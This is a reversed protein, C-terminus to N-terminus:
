QAVSNDYTISGLEIRGKWFSQTEAVYQGKITNTYQADFQSTQEQEIVTKCQNDYAKSDNNNVMKIVFYGDKTELVGSVEGNKMKKVVKLTKADLFDTDTEILDRTAYSIGTKKDTTGNEETQILDKTFDKAKVAKKQLAEMDKAAQKLTAEDKTKTENNEGTETKAFTYYQLTYQRYDKKSVTKKLEDENINLGSIVSQKYKEGLEQKEFVTIMTAEDLGKMKKQKDTLNERASQVNKKIKEKEEDTLSINNKLASLYLIERQKMGDMISKKYVEAYTDGNETAEDWDFSMGYAAYMDAMAEAQYIDYMAEQVNVTNTVEKGDKGPGKVTLVARPRLQTYCVVFVGALIALIGIIILIKNKNDTTATGKKNTNTDQVGIGNNKIIKKASNM